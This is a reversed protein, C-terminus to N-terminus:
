LLYKQHHVELLCCGTYSNTTNHLFCKLNNLNLLEANSFDPLEILRPM